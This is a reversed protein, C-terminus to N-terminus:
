VYEMLVTVILIAVLPLPPLVVLLLRRPEFRLHMYYMAVLLAKWVATGLLIFVIVHKPFAGLFAVGLEAMTLVFLLGWVAIYSLGEHAAAGTGERNLREAM